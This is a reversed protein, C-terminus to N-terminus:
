KIKYYNLMEQYKTYKRELHVSSNGYLWDMIKLIQQNGKKHIRHISKMKGYGIHISLETSLIEKISNMLSEAGCINFQYRRYNKEMTYCLSGDGDFVGRIFHNFLSNELIPITAIQSKNRVIGKENLNAVVNVVACNFSYITGFGHDFTQIPKKESYIMESLKELHGEDKIDVRLCKNNHNHGDALIFGLWYAESETTIDKFADKKYKYRM